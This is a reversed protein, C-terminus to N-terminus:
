RQDVQVTLFMGLAVSMASVSVAAKVISLSPSPHNLVSLSPSIIPSRGTRCDRSDLASAFDYSEKCTYNHDKGKCEEGTYRDEEKAKEGTLVSALVGTTPFSAAISPPHPIVVLKFTGSLDNLLV